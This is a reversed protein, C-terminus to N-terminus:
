IEGGNYAPPTSKDRKKKFLASFPVTVVSSWRMNQFSFDLLHSSVGHGACSVKEKAGVAALSELIQEGAEALRVIEM